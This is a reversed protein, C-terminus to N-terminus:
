PTEVEHRVICSENGDPDRLWAGDRDVDMRDVSRGGETFTVVM